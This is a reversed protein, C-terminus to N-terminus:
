LTYSIAARTDLPRQGNANAWDTMDAPRFLGCVTRAVSPRNALAGCSAISPM